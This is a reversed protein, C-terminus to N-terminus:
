CHIILDIHPQRFHSNRTCAASPQAARGKSARHLRKFTYRHNIFHPDIKTGNNTRKHKRTYHM